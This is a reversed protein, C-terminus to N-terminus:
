RYDDNQWEGTKGGSKHLLATQEIVM